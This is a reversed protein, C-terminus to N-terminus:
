DPRQSYIREFLYADRAAVFFADPRLVFGTAIDLGIGKVRWGGINVSESGTNWLEVYELQKFDDPARYMIENIVVKDATLSQSAFLIFGFVLPLYLRHIRFDECRLIDPWVADIRLHVNNNNTM